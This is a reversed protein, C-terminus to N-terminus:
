PIVTGAREYPLPVVSFHSPSVMSNPKCKVSSVQQSCVPRRTIDWSSVMSVAMASYQGSMVRITLTQPCSCIRSRVANSPRTVAVPVTRTVTNYVESSLAPRRLRVSGTGNEQVASSSVSADDCSSQAM